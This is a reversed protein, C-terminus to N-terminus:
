LTGELRKDPALGHTFHLTKKSIKLQDPTSFKDTQMSNPINTKQGDIARKNRPLKRWVLHLLKHEDSGKFDSVDLILNSTVDDFIRQLIREQRNEVLKRAVIEAMESWDYM